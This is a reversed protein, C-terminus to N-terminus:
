KTKGGGKPALPMINEPQGDTRGDTRLRFYGSEVQVHARQDMRGVTVTKRYTRGDTQGDTRGSLNRPMQQLVCTSTDQGGVSSLFFVHRGHNENFNNSYFLINTPLYITVIAKGCIDKVYWQTHQSCNLRKALKYGSCEQYIPDIGHNSIDHYSRRPTM